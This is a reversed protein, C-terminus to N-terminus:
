RQNEAVARERKKAAPWRHEQRKEDALAVGPAGNPKVHIEVRDKGNKISCRWPRCAPQVLEGLGARARGTAPDYLVDPERQQRRHAPSARSRSAAPAMSLSEMGAASLREPNASQAIRVEITSTSQPPATRPWTSNLVSAEMTMTVDGIEATRRGARRRLVHDLAQWGCRGAGSLQATLTRAAPKAAM